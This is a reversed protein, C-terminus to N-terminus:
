EDREDRPMPLILATRWNRPETSMGPWASLAARITEYIWSRYEERQGEDLYGWAVPDGHQDVHLWNFFNGYARKAAAEVAEPSINIEAM